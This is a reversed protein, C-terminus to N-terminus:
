FSVVELLGSFAVFGDISQLSVFDGDSVTLASSIVRLSCNCDVTLFCTPPFKSKGKMEELNKLTEDIMVEADSRTEVTSLTPEDDGTSGNEQCQGDDGDDDDIRHDHRHSVLGLRVEEGRVIGVSTRVRSLKTQRPKSLFLLDVSSNFTVPKNM